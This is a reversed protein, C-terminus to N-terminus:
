CRETADPVTNYKITLPYFFYYTYSFSVENHTSRGKASLVKGAVPCVVAGDDSSREISIRAPPCTNQVGSSGAM